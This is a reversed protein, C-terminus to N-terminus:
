QAISPWGTRMSEVRAEPQDMWEGTEANYFNYGTGRDSASQNFDHSFTAVVGVSGNPLQYMRNSCWGNSQLDYTTWMSEDDEINDYRNTIVNKATQPAFNSASSASVENGLAIGKKSDVKFSRIDNKAVRQQAFANTVGAVSLLLTFLVTYVARKWHLTRAKM